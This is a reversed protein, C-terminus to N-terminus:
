RRVLVNGPNLGLDVQMLAVFSRMLLGAGTLLVLSLAVEVLVLANRLKGRRFGGSVGKGADKLPEAVDRKATQLAPALGFLLATLAPVGLSFLLVPVSLRIVAEQPIAGDPIAAVLAKLGGYAFLCGVAAGGVAVLFGEMVLQRNLRM